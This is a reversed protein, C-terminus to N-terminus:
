PQETPSQRRHAIFRAVRTRLDVLWDPSAPQAADGPPADCLLPHHRLLQRREVDSLDVPDSSRDNGARDELTRRCYTAVKRKIQWLWVRSGTESRDQLVDECFRFVAIQKLLDTPTVGCPERAGSDTIAPTL